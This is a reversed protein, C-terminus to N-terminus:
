VNRGLQNFIEALSSLARAQELVITELAEIRVEMATKPNPMDMGFHGFELCRYVCKAGDLGIYVECM